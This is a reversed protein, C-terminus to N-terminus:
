SLAALAAVVLDAPRASRARQCRSFGLKTALDGLRESAVAVPMAKLLGLVDGPVNSVILQLAEASSVALVAPAKLRRIATVARPSPRVPVREYVNARIIRAGRAELAPALIGRGGPATVLGLTCDKLDQLGTLALLGESDMREPTVVGSVGARGLALATGTGVAYWTQDAAVQLAQLGAAANAAAPSTFLVRSAGLAAQLAARNDPDDITQLTWPSLALLGGGYRAAAHRLTAHGGRPRLSIVYWAAPSRSSMAVAQCARYSTANAVRLGAVEGVGTM